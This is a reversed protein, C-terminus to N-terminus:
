HFFSLVYKNSSMVPAAGICIIFTSDSYFFLARFHNELSVKDYLPPAKM